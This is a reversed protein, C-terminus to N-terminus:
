KKASFNRWDFSSLDPLKVVEKWETVDNLMLENPEPLAGSASSEPMVWRQGYGDRLGVGNRSNDILM